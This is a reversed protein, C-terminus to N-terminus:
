VPTIAGDNRHKWHLLKRAGAAVDSRRQRRQASQALRKRFQARSENQNPRAQGASQERRIQAPATVIDIKVFAPAIRAFPVQNASTRDIERKGGASNM